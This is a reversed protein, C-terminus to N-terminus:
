KIAYWQGDYDQETDVENMDDFDRCVRESDELDLDQLHCLLIYEFLEQLYDEPIDSTKMTEKLEAKLEELTKILEKNTIETM